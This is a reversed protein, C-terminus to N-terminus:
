TESPKSLDDPFYIGKNYAQARILPLQPMIAIAFINPTKRTICEPM